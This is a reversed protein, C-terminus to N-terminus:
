FPLPPCPPRRPCRRALSGACLACLFASAMEGRSSYARAKLAFGPVACGNAVEERKLFFARNGYDLLALFAGRAPSKAVSPTLCVHKVLHGVLQIKVAVGQHQATFALAGDGAIDGVGVRRAIHSPVELKAIRQALGRAHCRRGGARGARGDRPQGGAARVSGCAGGIRVVNRQGGHIGAGPPRGGAPSRPCAPSHRASM